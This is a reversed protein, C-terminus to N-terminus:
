TCDIARHGRDHLRSARHILYGFPDRARRGDARGSLGNDRHHAVRDAAAPSLHLRTGRHPVLPAPRPVQQDGDARDSERGQAARTGRRAPGDACDTASRPTGRAPPGGRAATAAPQAPAAAPRGAAPARRRAHAPHREPHTDAPRAREPSAAAARRTSGSVGAPCEGASAGPRDPFPRTNRGLARDSLRPASRAPSGRHRDGPRRPDRPHATPIRRRLHRPPESRYGGMASRHVAPDCRGPSSPATAPSQRSAGASHRLGPRLGRHRRPGPYLCIEDTRGMRDALGSSGFGRDAHGGGKM